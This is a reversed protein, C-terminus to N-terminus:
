GLQESVEDGAATHAISQAGTFHLRGKSDREYGRVRGAPLPQGLGAEAVNAFKLYTAPRYTVPAVAGPREPADTVWRQRVYRREVPVAPASLLAVQKTQSNALTVKGPLAYLHVDGVAERRM